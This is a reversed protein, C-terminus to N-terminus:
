KQRWHVSHDFVLRRGDQGDVEVVVRELAAGRPAGLREPLGFQQMVVHFIVMTLLLGQLSLM